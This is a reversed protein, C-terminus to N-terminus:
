IFDVKIIDPNNKFNNYKIYEEETVYDLEILQKRFEQEPLDFKSIYYEKKKEIFSVGTIKAHNKEYFNKVKTKFQQFNSNKIYTKNGNQIFILHDVNIQEIYDFLSQKFDVADAVRLETIQKSTYFPALEFFNNTKIEFVDSHSNFKCHFDKGRLEMKYVGSYESNNSLIIQYLSHEEEVFIHKLYLIDNGIKQLCWHKTLLSIIDQALFTNKVDDKLAALDIAPNKTLSLTISNSM